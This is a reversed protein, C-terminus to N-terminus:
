ARSTTTAAAARPEVVPARRSWWLLFLGVLILPVSQVQGMTLWGTHLLYGLQPDPERIFEVGFRFVGYLLAFLGSVAYRHRPKISFVWLAVFLVVGELFFEYLESPQRAYADLAGSPYLTRLQDISMGAFKPNEQLAHPYIMAWPLTSIKGWLEGNIFNGLRGLGLGIPVLPAVFDVVDFYHRVTGRRRWWWWLSAVLVGLLGGHFSMGGDWVRFIQAPDRWVWSIPQYTLMYWIRGGVIVGLMAYFALDFFGDRDVQLRGQRRRYEGLVLAAVFGVLYMLGYWHVGFSFIHFAVPDIGLFLPHTM